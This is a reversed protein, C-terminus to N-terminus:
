HSLRAYVDGYVQNNGVFPQLNSLVQDGGSWDSLVLSEYLSYSFQSYGLSELHRICQETSGLHEPHFEFSLTNIPQSLGSLVEHEYGEVDIKIFKPVGFHYIMSDLTLQCALFEETWQYGNFRNTQKVAEIWEPCASSINATTGSKLWVIGARAGLAAPVVTMYRERTLAAKAQEKLKEICSPHPEIAIVRSGLGLFVESRTGFNAGVDFVLDDHNLFQKYFGRIVSDSTIPVPTFGMSCLINGEWPQSHTEAKEGCFRCIDDKRYIWRDTIVWGDSRM